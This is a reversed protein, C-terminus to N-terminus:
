YTFSKKKSNIKNEERDNMKLDGNSKGTGNGPRTKTRNCHPEKKKM